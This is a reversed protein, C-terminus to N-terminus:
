AIWDILGSGKWSGFGTFDMKPRQIKRWVPASDLTLIGEVYILPNRDLKASELFKLAHELSSPENIVVLDAEVLDPLISKTFTADEFSGVIQALRGSEFDGLNLWTSPSSQWATQDVSHVVRDSPLGELISLTAMGDGTGFEVVSGPNVIRTITEILHYGEGPYIDFLKPGPNTRASLIPHKSRHTETAIWVALDNLRASPKGENSTPSLLLSLRSDRFGRPKEPRIEDKALARALTSRWGM